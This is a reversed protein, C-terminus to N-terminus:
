RRHGARLAASLALLVLLVACILVLAGNKAREGLIIGGLMVVAAFLALYDMLTRVWRPRSPTPSTKDPM